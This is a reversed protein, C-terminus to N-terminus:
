LALFQRVQLVSMSVGIVLEQLVNEIETVENEKVIVNEIETAIMQIQVLDVVNKLQNIVSKPHDVIPNLGITILAINLKM